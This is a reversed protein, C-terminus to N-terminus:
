QLGGATIQILATISMTMLDGGVPEALANGSLDDNTFRDISIEEGYSSMTSSDFTLISTLNEDLSNENEM